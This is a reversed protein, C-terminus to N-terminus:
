LGSVDFWSSLGEAARGLALPSSAASDGLAHIIQSYLDLSM